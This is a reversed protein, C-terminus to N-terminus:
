LAMVPYGLRAVTIDAVLDGVSNGAAFVTLGLIAESIDFIVGIAKLVGVVEGAITSIWAIAILFGLFCLMSHYRPRQSESTTRLLLACMVISVVLTSAAMAAYVRRPSTLDEAVNAWLVLVAFQPGTFIQLAVLWRNWHNIDGSDDDDDDDENGDYGGRISLPKTPLGADAPPPPFVFSRANSHARSRGRSSARSHDRSQSPSRISIVAPSHLSSLGTHSRTLRRYLQFEGDQEPASRTRAVVEEALGNRAGLGQPDVITRDDDDSDGDDDDDSDRDSEVVPLTVVLLFVSPISMASVFKDWITKEGWNQVTPFLTRLVVDPPPLIRYPWFRYEKASANAGSFYSRQTNAEHPQQLAPPASVSSLPEPAPSMLMPTDTYQPFPSLLGAPDDDDEDPLEIRPVDVRLSPGAPPLAIPRGLSNVPPPALSGGVVYSSVPSPSRRGPQKIDTPSATAANSSFHDLLVPPQDGFGRHPREGLLQGHEGGDHELTNSRSLGPTPSIPFSGTREHDRSAHALASRFELAGVLSPRIPAISSRRRGRPRLVRMHSAVEAALFRSNEASAEEHLGGDQDASVEIRPGLELFSIDTFGTAVRHPPARPSADREPSAPASPSDRYPEFSPPQQQQQEDGSPVAGGGGSVPASLPAPLSKDVRRERQRSSYWHWGVVTAVYVGYYGIMVLCEWLHLEGDILFLCTLAVAFMFFCVDRMYTKRDVRFERVLAMSGAVVATIFGAAGILEGVAMSASNSGMAAFTSFLDPSGNGFALFTVGAMSEPMHLITAITSLNVCFFDSAAIGITAFLLGLWLVMAAFITVRADPDACYYLRLYPLLSPQDDACRELVFACQDAAAAINHVWGCETADAPPARATILNLFANNAAAEAAAAADDRYYYAHFRPGFLVFSVLLTVLFVIAYFPRTRLRIRRGVGRGLASLSPAM